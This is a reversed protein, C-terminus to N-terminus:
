RQAPASSAAPTASDSTDPSSQGEEEEGSGALSYFPRANSPRSFVLTPEIRIEDALPFRQRDITNLSRECLQSWENFWHVQTARVICATFGTVATNIFPQTTEDLLLRYADLLDANRQVDPPIPANRITIAFQNNMDSIRSAGAIEWNPVRMAMVETYKATAEEMLRRRSVIYPTLRQQTWTDFARRNTGSFAPLRAAMFRQYAVEALYFRAEAVADKSAEVAGEAQDGLQERIQREGQPQEGQAATGWLTVAQQFYTTAQRYDQINWYGRALAVAGQIKQDTTGQEAYRRMFDAYHRILDNWAQRIQQDREHREESHTSNQARLRAVRDRYIQGISYVVGAAVRRRQPDNGFYRAFKQANALARDEQGLGIRFITAQRLADAAQDLPNDRAVASGTRRAQEEATRAAAEVEARHTAVYDAYQEYMDAARGFVQIAHYNGALRYLARVAWPSNRQLYAQVLRERVLMARGLLLAADYYIAANYLMEDLRGCERHNRVISITERAAEAFRRTGALSEAKKRLVQCQLDEVRHCFDERQARAGAGCFATMLRPLSEAMQDYCAPRQPNWMDGMVNLSDLLLDASIERLNEPDPVAQDSEAVERFLTAAEEFKNATYYAYARRYRITLLITRVDNGDPDRQGQSPQVFCVYRTFARVMGNEMANFDRPVLRAREAARAQEPSQNRSNGQRAAERRAGQNRQTAQTNRSGFWDNYCLVAKYAADETYEGEPNMEVVRDYAPGCAEFNGQDRLIDARYYQIRYLTPWDRRDYEPFEVQDFDPFEEVIKQYLEAVMRMTDANRTGRTQAQGEASRGIAELHWHSAVDYTVRAAQNRCEMRVTEPRQSRKFTNFVDILRNVEVMQDPKPRSAIVGRAVQAQWFCFRDSNARAEMMAHYSAIANPWQGSDQYLEGLREFMQFSNDEDSAYRRFAAMASTTNLPHQATGYVAGYVTVLEMRANRLLATVSTAQPHSNGYEIVEYFKNLAGEFEQLNYLVWAMKYLAYGYVQNGEDQVALVREYFQRAAAMDGQEFYFEGFSLYANPVFPSNPFRQVLTRYVTLAEDNRNAEQLAFGLYFLARDMNQYNPATRVLNQFTAILQDRWERSHTRHETQQRQLTQVQADNHAQRAQFIDDELDEAQGNDISSLEQYDEALRMLTNPRNPDDPRMRNVLTGTLRAEAILIDRSRAQRDRNRLLTSRDLTGSPRQAERQPRAQNENVARASTPPSTGRSAGYRQSGAPCELARARAEPAICVDAAM